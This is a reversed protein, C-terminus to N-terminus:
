SPPTTSPGSTLRRQRGQQHAGPRGVGPRAHHRPHLRVRRGPSPELVVQRLGEDPRSINYDVRNLISNFKENKPMNTDYFNNSGEPSVVGAVDNPQPYLKTYFNYMPNLIPIGKNGPFPTRTVHGNQVFASRPDYVQYSAANPLNLMDSFDGNRWNTKPVTVNVSSTTETKVQYIGNYSFFFFLKDRGNYIKPLWM